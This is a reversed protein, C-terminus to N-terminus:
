SPASSPLTSPSATLLIGAHANIEKRLHRFGGRQVAIDMVLYFIAGLSAIRGLDFLHDAVYNLSFAVGTVFCVHLVMSRTDPMAMGLKRRDGYVAPNSPEIRTFGQCESPPPDRPDGPQPSPDHKM